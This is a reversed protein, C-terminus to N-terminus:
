PIRKYDHSICSKCKHRYQIRYTGNQNKVFMRSYEWLPLFQDCSRCWKIGYKILTTQVYRLEGITM